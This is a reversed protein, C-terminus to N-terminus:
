RPEPKRGSVVVMNVCAHFCEGNERLRLEDHWLRAEAPTIIQQEIATDTLWNGFPTDELRRQPMPIIDLRIDNLNRERCLGYLRRGALGNPRMRLAFFAMLKRELHPDPFDVGASSWDTDVLVIRGGPRTVRVLEDVVTAEDEPPLVQLLREARCADITDDPFPLNLVSANIHAVRHHCGAERAAGDAEALMTEDSDIGVIRGTAGVLGALPVTDVGPGCGADLLTAGPTIAMHTYSLEKLARAREATKKLYEATVYGNDLSM